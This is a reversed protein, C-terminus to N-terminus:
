YVAYCSFTGDIGSKPLSLTGSGNRIKRTPIEPIKLHGKGTDPSTFHINEVLQKDEFSDKLEIQVKKAEWVVKGKITGKLAFRNSKDIAKGHFVMSSDPNHCEIYALSGHASAIGAVLGFTMVILAKM